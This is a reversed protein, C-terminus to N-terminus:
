VRHPCSPPFMSRFDAISTDFQRQCHWCPASIQRESGGDNRGQAGGNNGFEGRRVLVLLPHICHQYFLMNTADGRYGHVLPSTDFHLHLLMEM